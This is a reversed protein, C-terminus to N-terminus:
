TQIYNTIIDIERQSFGGISNKSEADKGNLMHEVFGNIFEDLLEAHLYFLNSWVELKTKRSFTKKLWIFFHVSNEAKMMNSCICFASFVCKNKFYLNRIATELKRLSNIDSADYTVM